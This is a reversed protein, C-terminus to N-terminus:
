LWFLLLMKLSLLRKKKKKKRLFSPPRSKRPSTYRTQRIHHISLSTRTAQQPHLVAFSVPISTCIYTSRVTYDQVFYTCKAVPINIHHGACTCPTSKEGTYICGSLYKTSYIIAGTITSWNRQRTDTSCVATHYEYMYMHYM